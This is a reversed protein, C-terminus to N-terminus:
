SDLIEEGSDRRVLYNPLRFSKNLYFLLEALLGTAFTLMGTMLGLISVQLLPRNGIGGVQAGFWERATWLGALYACGLAGSLFLILGIKGFFHMPRGNFRTIFGITLFDFLGRTFREIGYKSQGHFRPHHVVPIEVVNFGMWHAIAPIYRHMEGYLNLCDVLERQYAKYGCNFDHLKIGSMAGTVSNFLKSPLTKHWPDNRVHKWGSVLDAGQELQEIFRPIEKPDDQMDGDMTIVIRGACKRFGINFATAKGFNRRSEILRVERLRPILARVAEATGDTSGDDIVLIEHTKNETTLVEHVLLCLPGISGEENLVPIIVSIEVPRISSPEVPNGNVDYNSEIMAYAKTAISSNQM